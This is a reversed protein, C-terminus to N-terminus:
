APQTHFAALQQAVCAGSPQPLADFLTQSVKSYVVDIEVLDVPWIRACGEFLRGLGHPSEYRFALNAVGADRVEVDILHPFELLRSFDVGQLRGVVQEPTVDFLLNQGIALLM